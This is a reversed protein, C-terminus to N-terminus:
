AKERLFIAFKKCGDCPPRSIIVRTTSRRIPDLVVQKLDEFRALDGTNLYYRLSIWIYRSICKDTLSLLPSTFFFFYWLMISREAHAAAARGKRQLDRRDRGDRASSPLKLGYQRSFKLVLPCWLKGDLVQDQYQEPPIWKGNRVGSCAAVLPITQWAAQGPILFARPIDLDTSSFLLYLQYRLPSKCLRGGLM